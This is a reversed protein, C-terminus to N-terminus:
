SNILKNILKDLMAKTINVGEISVTANVESAFLRKIARLEDINFKQCGFAIKKVGDDTGVEAHYTGITIKEEEYIPTFTSEVFKKSLYYSFGDGKKGEVVYEANVVGSNSIVLKKGKSIYSNVDFPATYGIIKKMDTQKAKKIIKFQNKNYTFNYISSDDALHINSDTVRGVTYDINPLLYEIAWKLLVGSGVSVSKCDERLQVIDGVEIKENVIPALPPVGGRWGQTVVPEVYLSLDSHLFFDGDDPNNNYACTCVPKGESTDFGTIYLFPQNKRQASSWHTSESLSSWVSKNHPVVRDGIKFNSM